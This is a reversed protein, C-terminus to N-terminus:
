SVRIGQQGQIDQKGLVRRGAGGKGRRRRRSRRRQALFNTAARRQCDAYTKSSESYLGSGLAVSLYVNIVSNLTAADSGARTCVGPGSARM